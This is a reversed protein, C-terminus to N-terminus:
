VGSGIGRVGRLYRCRTSLTRDLIELSHTIAAWLLAVGRQRDGSRRNKVSGARKWTSVATLILREETKRFVAARSNITARQTGPGDYGRLM